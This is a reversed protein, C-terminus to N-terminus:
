YNKGNFEDTPMKQLTSVHNWLLTRKIRRKKKEAHTTQARTDVSFTSKKKKSGAIKEIKDVEVQKIGTHM